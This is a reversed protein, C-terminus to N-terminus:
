SWTATPDPSDWTFTTTDWFDLTARNATARTTGITMEWGAGASV